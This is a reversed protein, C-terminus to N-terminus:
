RNRTSLHQSLLKQHGHLDPLLCHLSKLSCTTLFPFKRMVGKERINDLLVEMKADGVMQGQFPGNKTM